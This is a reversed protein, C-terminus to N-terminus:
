RVEPLNLDFGSVSRDYKQERSLVVIQIQLIGTSFSLRIAHAFNNSIKGM